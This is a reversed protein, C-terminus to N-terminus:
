KTTQTTYWNGTTTKKMKKFQDAYVDIIIGMQVARETQKKLETISTSYNKELSAINNTARSIIDDLQNKQISIYSSIDEQIKTCKTVANDSFTTNNEIKQVAIDLELKQKTAM